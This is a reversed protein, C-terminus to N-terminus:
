AAAQGAQPQPQRRVTWLAAAAVTATSGAVLFALRTGGLESLWGALLGGLPALGALALLYLSLM